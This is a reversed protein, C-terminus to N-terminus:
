VLETITLVLTDRIGFILTNLNLLKEGTQAHTFMSVSFVKQELGDVTSNSFAM